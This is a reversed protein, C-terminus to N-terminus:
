NRSFLAVNENLHKALKIAEGLALILSEIILLDDTESETSIGIQANQPMLDTLSIRQVIRIRFFGTNLSIFTSTKGKIEQRTSTQVKVRIGNPLLIEDSVTKGM